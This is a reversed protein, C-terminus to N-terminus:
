SVYASGKKELMGSILSTSRFQEKAITYVLLCKPSQIYGNGLSALKNQREQNRKLFRADQLFSFYCFTESNYNKLFLLM